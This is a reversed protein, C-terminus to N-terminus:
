SASQLAKLGLRHVDVVQAAIRARQAEDTMPAGRALWAAATPLMPLLIDLDM